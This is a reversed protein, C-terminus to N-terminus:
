AEQYGWEKLKKSLADIDRQSGNIETRTHNDLYNFGVWGDKCEMLLWITIRSDNQGDVVGEFIKQAMLNEKKIPNPPFKIVTKM